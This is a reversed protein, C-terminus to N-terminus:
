MSMHVPTLTSVYVYSSTIRMSVEHFFASVLFVTVSSVMKDHGSKVMPLYVHRRAWKHVPINWSSWFATISESNRYVLIYFLLNIRFLRFQNRLAFYIKYKAMYFFGASWCKLLFWSKVLKDIVADGFDSTELSKKQGQVRQCDPM